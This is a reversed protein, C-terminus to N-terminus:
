DYQLSHIHSHVLRLYYVFLIVFVGGVILNVVLAGHM